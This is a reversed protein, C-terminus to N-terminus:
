YHLKNDEDSYRDGVITSIPSENKVQNNYFHNISPIPHSIKDIEDDVDDVDDCPFVDRGVYQLNNLIAYDMAEQPNTFGTQSIITKKWQGLHNVYDMKIFKYQM